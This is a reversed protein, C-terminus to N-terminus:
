QKLNIINLLLDIGNSFLLEYYSMSNASICINRIFKQLRIFICQNDSRCKAIMEFLYRRLEEDQIEAQLVYYGDLPVGQIVQKITNLIKVKKRVTEESINVDNEM